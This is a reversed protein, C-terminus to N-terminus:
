HCVCICPQVRLGEVGSEGQQGEFWLSYHLGAVDALYAEECLSDELLKMVLHTMAAARPSAYAAPSALRFYANALPLRFAADLKHWLRLGPQDLLLLPASPFASVDDAAAAAAAVGQETSVGNAAAAEDNAVAEEVVAGEVECKLAFDSPIYNNRPPLQVDQSPAASSWADILEGPLAAHVFPFGFWPEQGSALTSPAMAAAASAQCAEFTHTQLDLRVASPTM